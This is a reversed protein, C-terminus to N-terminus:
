FLSLEVTQGSYKKEHELLWQKRELGWHYGVLQGQAGVVRHCPLVITFPNSGVAHGVARVAMRDKVRQALEGYSVTEGYPITQLAHWVSSTFPTSDIHLPLHFQQLTGKFYADLQKITKSFLSSLLHDALESDGSELDDVFTISDLALGDASEICLTGIPSHYVVQGM